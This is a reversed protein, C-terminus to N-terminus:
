TRSKSITGRSPSSGEVLQNLTLQEALQAVSAVPFTENGSTSEPLGAGIRSRGFSVGAVCHGFAKLGRVNLSYHIWRLRWMALRSRSFIVRPVRPLVVGFAGFTGPDASSIGFGNRALRELQAQGFPPM